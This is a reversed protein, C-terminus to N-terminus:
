GGSVPSVSPSVVSGGGSCFVCSSLVVVLRASAFSLTGPSSAGVTSFNISM